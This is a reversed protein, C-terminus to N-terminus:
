YVLSFIKIGGFTPYPPISSVGKRGDTHGNTQARDGLRYSPKQDFKAYVKLPM